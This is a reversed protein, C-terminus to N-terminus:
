NASQEKIFELSRAIVEETIQMHGAKPYRHFTHQAGFKKLIDVMLLANAIPVSRDNDSHLILIPKSNKSVHNVPSAQKRAQVPDGIKPTWIKGWSLTTLEYNAAVSIVARVDNSAKEWGGTRPYPGDGLTAALSVMHGGASQGILFIREPDINYQKAHAHVFRIACQVDQYCAPAPTCGVLRYDISMAFFGFGAWQKVKITSTDKKHGGRWRGGHVSIIAPMPENTEPWAVDALLGAGQVRGYLLDEQYVIKREKNKESEQKAAGFVEGPLAPSSWLMLLTCCVCSVKLFM